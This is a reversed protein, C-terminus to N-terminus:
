DRFEPQHATIGVNEASIINATKRLYGNEIDSQLRRLIEIGAQPGNTYTVRAIFETTYVDNEGM